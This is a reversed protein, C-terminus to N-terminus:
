FLKKKLICFTFWSWRARARGRGHYYSVRTLLFLFLRFFFMKVRSDRREIYSCITHGGQQNQVMGTLKWEIGAFYSNWTKSIKPVIHKQWIKAASFQKKCVRTKSYQNLILWNIQNFKFLSEFIILFTQNNKFWSSEFNILM